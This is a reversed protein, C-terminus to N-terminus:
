NIIFNAHTEGNTPSYRLGLLKKDFKESKKKKYEFLGLHSWSRGAKIESITTNCVNFKKAISVLTDGQKILKHIEFVEKENLKALNSKSGLPNSFKKLVEYRHTMNQQNSCWELNTVTNNNKDGNLHNVCDYNHLNPIFMKAVLRHVAEIKKVGNDYFIAIRWYQKSNNKNPKLLKEKKLYLTKNINHIKFHPLRKVNGLNSIAYTSNPITEWVETLNTEM